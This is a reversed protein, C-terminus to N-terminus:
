INLLEKKKTEYEEKTIAGMDLLEKYKKLEDAMNLNNSFQNNTDMNVSNDNYVDYSIRKAKTVVWLSAGFMVLSVLILELVGGLVMIQLLNFHRSNTETLSLTLKFILALVSLVFPVFYFKNITEKSEEQLVKKNNILVLVFFAIMGVCLCIKDLTNPIAFITGFAIIGAGLIIRYNNREKFLGLALLIYGIMYAGNEIIFSISMTSGIYFTSYNCFENLTLIAIILSVAMSVFAFPRTNKIKKM